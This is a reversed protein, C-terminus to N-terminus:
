RTLTSANGNPLTLQISKGDAAFTAKGTGGSKWKLDLERKTRDSWQWTGKTGTASTFTGDDVLTWTGKPANWTGAPSYTQAASTEAPKPAPKPIPVPPPAPPALMALQKEAVLEATFTQEVADHLQGVRQTWLALAGNNMFKEKDLLAKRSAENEMQQKANDARAAAGADPGRQWNAVKADERDQKGHVNKSYHFDAVAKEHEEVAGILSTVVNLAAQYMPQQAPPATQLRATYEAQAVSLSTRDLPPQKANSIDSIKRMTSDILKRLHVSPEPTSPKGAPKAAQLALPALFLALIGTLIHRNTKM